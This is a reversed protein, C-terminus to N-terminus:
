RGDGATRLADTVRDLHARMAAEAADGDRMELADLIAAHEALSAGARGPILITRYQYRVLQSSLSEVLREVTAHHAIRLIRAHLEGNLESTALLDGDALRTRMRALVARLRAIADPDARRAAERAGIGELAARAELIEVAEELSVRRVKAGRNREHVVLGEHDLRAIAGRVAGRSAELSRVLDAEVLRENPELSGSLIAARLREYTEPTSSTVAV